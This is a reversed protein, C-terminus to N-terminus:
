TYLVYFIDGFKYFIGNDEFMVLLLDMVDRIKWCDNSVPTFRFNGMCVLIDLGMNMFLFKMADKQTSVMERRMKAIANDYVTRKYM